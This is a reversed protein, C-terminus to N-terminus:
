SKLTALLTTPWASGAHAAPSDTAVSSQWAETQMITACEPVTVQAGSVLFSGNAIGVYVACAVGFSYSPRWHQQKLAEPGGDCIVVAGQGVTPASASATSAASVAAPPGPAEPLPGRRLPDGGPM